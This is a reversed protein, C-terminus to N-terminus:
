SYNKSPCLGALYPSLSNLTAYYLGETISFYKISNNMHSYQKTLLSSLLYATELKWHVQLRSDEGTMKELFTFKQRKFM